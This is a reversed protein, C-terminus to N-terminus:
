NSRGYNNLLLSLDGADVQGDDNIDAQPETINITPKGYNNLLISLDASDVQNDGNIDGILITPIPTETSAPNLTPELTPSLEVSFEVVNSMSYSTSYVADVYAECTGNPLTTSYSLETVDKNYINDQGLKRIKVSYKIAQNDKNWWFSATSGNIGVYFTQPTPPSPPTTIGTSPPINIAGPLASPAKEIYTINRTSGRYNLTVTTGWNITVPVDWAIQCRGGPINAEGIKLNNGNVETVFISHGGGDSSIRIIDGPKLNSIDYFTSWTYPNGGYIEHAVQYAFGACQGAKYDGYNDIRPYAFFNCTANNLNDSSHGSPCATTTTGNQNNNVRGPKDAHNWYRGARFKAQVEALTAANVPTPNFLVLGLMFICAMFISTIKKNM